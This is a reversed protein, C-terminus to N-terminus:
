LSTSVQQEGGGITGGGSALREMETTKDELQEALERVRIDKEALLHEKSELQSERVKIVQPLLSNLHLTLSVNQLYVLFM